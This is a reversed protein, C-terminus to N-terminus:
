AVELDAPRRSQRPLAIGFTSGQGPVGESEVWVRGGHKEVIERVLSLGLGTGSIHETGPQRVRYFQEFLRSQQDLPIGIGTDQVVIKVEDGDARVRITIKGGEPTYKIGNDVLNAIAQTLMRQDGKVKIPEPVIDLWIQQEKMEGQLRQDQVVQRVLQGVDLAEWNNNDREIRELELLEDILKKMADMNKRVRRVLDVQQKNFLADEVLVEFFGSALQLPTRLDHSALRILFSKLQSLEHIATIDAMAVVYGAREGELSTVPNLHAVLAHGDGLEVQLEVPGTIEGREIREAVAALARHGIVAALPRGAVQEESVGFLKAAALNAMLVRGDLDTVVVAHEVSDLVARLNRRGQAVERFLRANELAVAAQNALTMLTGVDQQGFADPQYSQAAIAGIVKGKVMMPVGLVSETVQGSGVTTLQVPLQKIEALNHALVPRKQEIVYAALGVGPQYLRHEPPYRQGADYLVQYVLEGREAHYLAVWFNSTDILQSAGEYILDVLAELDLSSGILRGVHNLTDLATVRQALVDSTRRLRQVVALGLFVVLLLLALFLPGLAAYGVAMVAAIPVFTLQMLLTRPTIHGLYRRLSLGRLLRDVSMVLRNVGAFALFLVLVQALEVWQLHVLPVVGGAARYAMGGVLWMLICMGASRAAFYLGRRILVVETFLNSIGAVWAAAVPGLLLACLLCIITGFSLFVHQSVRLNFIDALIALPIFLLILGWTSLPLGGSLLLLSVMGLM